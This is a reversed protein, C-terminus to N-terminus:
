VFFGCRTTRNFMSNLVSNRSDVALGNEDMNNFVCVTHNATEARVVSLIRESLEKGVTDPHTESMLIKGKWYYEEIQIDKIM